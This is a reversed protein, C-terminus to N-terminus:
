KQGSPPTYPCWLSPLPLQHAPTHLTNNAHRQVHQKNDTSKNDNLEKARSCIHGTAEGHGQLRDQSAMLVPDVSDVPLRRDVLTGTPDFTVKDM